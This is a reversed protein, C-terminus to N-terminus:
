QLTVVERLQFDIFKEVELALLKEIFVLFRSQYTLLSLKEMMFQDKIKSITNNHFGQGLTTDLFM